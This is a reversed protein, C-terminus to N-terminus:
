LYELNRAALWKNSRSKGTKPANYNFTLEDGAPIRRLTTFVLTGYGGDPRVSLNAPNGHNYLAGYGLVIALLEKEAKQGARSLKALRSGDFVMEQLCDPLLAFHDELIITPCVEVVENRKFDRSAFVGRGKKSGTDRIEVDPSYITKFKKLKLGKIQHNVLADPQQGDLTQGPRDHSPFSASKWGKARGM